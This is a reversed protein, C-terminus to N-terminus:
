LLGSHVEALLRISVDCRKSCQERKQFAVTGAAANLGGLNAEHPRTRVMQVRLRSDDLPLCFVPESATQGCCRASRQAQVRPIVVSCILSAM